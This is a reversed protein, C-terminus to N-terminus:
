RRLWSILNVLGMLLYIIISLYLPICILGWGWRIAGTFKLVSFVATTFLMCLTFLHIESIAFRVDEMIEEDTVM